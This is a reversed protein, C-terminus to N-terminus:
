KYFRVEYISNWSNVNSGYGLIKIHKAKIGDFYFKEEEDTTGSSTGDFIEKFEIGDTSALIKFKYQRLNGYHLEM